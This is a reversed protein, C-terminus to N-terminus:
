CEINLLSSIISMLGMGVILANTGLYKPLFFICLLLATASIAYNILSKLELGISNLISGTIQNIGMPIMIIAAYSVYKGAESSNFM